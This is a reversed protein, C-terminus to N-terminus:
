RVLSREGSASARDSRAVCVPSSTMGRRRAARRRALSRRRPAPPRSPRPRQGDVAQGDPLPVDEAQEGVAEAIAVDRRRERDRRPRDLRVHAADQALQVHPVARLGRAAVPVLGSRRGTLIPRAPHRAADRSRQLATGAATMRAAERVAAIEVRLVHPDGTRIEVGRGDGVVLRLAGAAVVAERIEALPVDVPVPGLCVLRRTTVYLDGRSARARPRSRGQPARPLRRPAGRRRVGRPRADRRDARRAGARVIGQERLRRRADDATAEDASVPDPHDPAPPRNVRWLMGARAGAPCGPVGPRPVSIADGYRPCWPARLGTTEGTASRITLPPWAGVTRAHRKPGEPSPARSRM